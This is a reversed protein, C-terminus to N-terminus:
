VIKTFEVTVNSIDSNDYVCEIAVSFNIGKLGVTQRQVGASGFVRIRKEGEESKFTLFADTASHLSISALTKRGEINFDTFPTVFTKVLKKDRFVAKDTLKYVTNGDKILALMYNKSDDFVTIMDIPEIGKILYFEGSSVDYSLTVPCVEDDIKMNLSAYYRGNCCTACVSENDCGKLLNDLGKLIRASRGAAFAYFGNETLYVTKKGCDVVSGGIIRVNDVEVSASLFENQDFPAYVRTIGYSRFVYAFGDNEAIKLLGGKGDQFDIFGAQTSSVYFNTPDFNESFWLTTSEGGTTVFLRENYILMSTIEPAAYDTINSGDYVYIRNGSSLIFVDEGNLKYCVGQPATDFFLNPIPAFDITSTVAKVYIRRNSGYLIIRDDKVGLENDYRKYYFIKKPVVGRFTSAFDNVKFIELGEGDKLAGDGYRFNFCKAARDPRLNPSVSADLCRSFDFLRIKKRMLKPFKM